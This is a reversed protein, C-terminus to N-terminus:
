RQAIDARTEHESLTSIQESGTERPLETSTTADVRRSAPDSGSTDISVV